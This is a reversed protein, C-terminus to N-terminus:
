FQLIVDLRYCASFENFQPLIQNLTSAIRFRAHATQERPSMESQIRLPEERVMGRLVCIRASAMITSINSGTMERLSSKIAM